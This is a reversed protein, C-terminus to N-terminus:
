LWTYFDHLMRICTPGYLETNHDQKQRSYSELWKRVGCVRQLCVGLKGCPIFLAVNLVMAFQKGLISPGNKSSTHGWNIFSLKTFFFVFLIRTGSEVSYVLSDFHKRILFLCGGLFFGLFVVSKKKCCVAELWIQTPARNFMKYLMM